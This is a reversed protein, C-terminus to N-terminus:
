QVPTSLHAGPYRNLFQEARVVFAGNVIVHEIGLPYQRPESFTARDSVAESFVILDAAYGEAVLGRNALNFRRAPLTTMKRVAEEVSFLGVERAYHGLLRPFTGYHRPHLIPSDLPLGDSGIMSWPLRLVERVDDESMQFLIISPKGEEEEILTLLAEDPELGMLGAIEQLSKGEYGVNTLRSLGCVFINDYGTGLVHNEMAGWPKKLDDKIKERQSADRLRELLAYVGGEVAWHPILSTITTSGAPYPYVDCTIDEGKARLEELKDVIRGIKGHNAKGIIKLHSIHAPAGGSRAVHLFEDIAAMLENGENRLHCNLVGGHRAVAGAVAILEDEAAYCGPAYMLGFSMGVAGAQMATEVIGVMVEIERATAPRAEFGMVAAHVAGHPIQAVTNLSKPSRVLTNMYEDFTKWNIRGTYKGLVPESYRLQTAADAGLPACGHGCNGLVATTVGQRLKPEHAPDRLVALDDHTHADILGPAVYAGQVDLTQASDGQVDPGVAAIVGDKVAVNGRFAPKGSGDIIRGNVLLIDFM